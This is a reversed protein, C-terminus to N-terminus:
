RRDASHLYEEMGAIADKTRGRQLCPDEQVRKQEAKWPPCFPSSPSSCENSCVHCSACADDRRVSLPSAREAIESHLLRPSRRLPKRKNFRPRWPQHSQCRRHPRLEPLPCHLGVVQFNNLESRACWHRVVIRDQLSRLMCQALDPWCLFVFWGEQELIKLAKASDRKCVCRLMAPSSLSSVSIHANGRKRANPSYSHVLTLAM